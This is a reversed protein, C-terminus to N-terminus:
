IIFCDLEDLYIVKDSILEAIFRVYINFAGATVISKKEEESIIYETIKSNVIGYIVGIEKTIIIYELTLIYIYENIYNKVRHYLNCKNNFIQKNSSISAFKIRKSIEKIKSLSTTNIYDLNSHFEFHQKYLTTEDM